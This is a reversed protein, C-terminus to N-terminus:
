MKRQVTELIHVESILQGLPLVSHLFVICHRDSPVDNSPLPLKYVHVQGNRCCSTKQTKQQNARAANFSLHVEVPICTATCLQPCTHKHSGLVKNSVFCCILYLIESCRVEECTAVISFVSQLDAKMKPFFKTESWIMRHNM